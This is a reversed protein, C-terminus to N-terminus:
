EFTFLPNGSLSNDFNKVLVERAPITAIGIAATYKVDYTKIQYEGLHQEFFGDGIEKNSLSAMAGQRDAWKFLECVRVQDVDTFGEETYETTSDRYPPDLYLYSDSNVYHRVGDFDGTLITCQEKFFRSHDLVLNTNIFETKETLLGPATSYRGRSYSYVKWWGNFSTKMMFYLYASERIKGMSEWDQIYAYKIRTYYRHRESTKRDGTVQPLLLYQSELAKCENLFDDAHDRIVEYMQVLERNQDNIVFETDPYRELVWHCMSGGGYFADIFRTFFRNPWFDQGYLGRM